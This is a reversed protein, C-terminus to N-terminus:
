SSIIIPFQFYKKKLWFFGVVLGVILLGAGLFFDWNFIDDGPSLQINNPALGQFLFFIGGILGLIATVQITKELNSSKM